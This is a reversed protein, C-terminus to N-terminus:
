EEATTKLNRLGTEFHEGMKKDINVFISTVNLMYVMSSRMTWNWTVQTSAGSPQLTFENIGHAAFPKVFDVKVSVKNPQISEIIEMRGKGASGKSDWDSTAGTGSEPGSYTRQMTSDEKDQPAWQKWNHFNNLLAFIKEPPANIVISRQLRFANPKTAAYLLVAAVILALVLLIKLFV